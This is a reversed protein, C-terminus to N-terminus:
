ERNIVEHPGTYPPQFPGRVADDRVFVHTADKLHQHIFPAPRIHHSAPQARLNRLRRRQVLGFTEMDVPHHTDELFEGPVRLPAGFLLEAPSCKLDRKYSTRLGLLVIWLSDLWGYANGKCTIATKLTRHWREILGNSAPHYPSTRTKASGLLNSLAKFLGGEFQRGQNTTIVAPTGYRAVWNDVFAAAVTQAHINPLPIAEPWRSFRDILTLCYRYGRVEPLPGIIDLHIQHFRSDPTPIKKPLLHVHRQIKSRQCQLCTRAWRRIDRDANPWVFKQQIQQSTSAGGPHAMGHVADFVCRRLSGPVYPRITGGSCDCFLPLESGLVTLKKLELSTKTGRLQQLEEDNAQQEALEETTVIVPLNIADIHSLTDAVINEGGALHAIETTFQAILDLQRAQRPSAKDLRQQFAYVLPRHDMRIIVRRGQIIDRFYKVAEYIALLERDYTSYRKQTSNLKRSFFAIPQQKDNCIQELAAGIAADSADTSLVLPLAETPHALLAAQSLETKCNEFADISEQTWPVLRKDNRRCDRLLENLPAQSRAANRLHRRYYNIM